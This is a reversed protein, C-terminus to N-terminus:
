EGGSMCAHLVWQCWAIYASERGRTYDGCKRARIHVYVCVFLSWQNILAKYIVVTAGVVM